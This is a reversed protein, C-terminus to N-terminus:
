SPLVDSLNGIKFIIVQKGLVSGALFHTRGVLSPSISSVIFLPRDVSAWIMGLSFCSLLHHVKPAVLPDGLLREVSSGGIERGTM